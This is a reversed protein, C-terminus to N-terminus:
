LMILIHRTVPPLSISVFMAKVLDESIVRLTFKLLEAKHVARQLLTKDVDTNEM